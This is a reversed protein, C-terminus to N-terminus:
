PTAADPDDTDAAEIRESRSLLIAYPGLIHANGVHSTGGIEDSLALARM